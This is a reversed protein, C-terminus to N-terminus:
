TWSDLYILLKLSITIFLIISKFIHLSYQLLIFYSCKVQTNTNTTGNIYFSAALILIWWSSLTTAILASNSPHWIALLLLKRLPLYLSCWSKPPRSLIHCLQQLISQFLVLDGALRVRRCAWARLPWIGLFLRRSAAIRWKYGSFFFEPSPFSAHAFHTYILVRM